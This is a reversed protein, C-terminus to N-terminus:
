GGINRSVQASAKVLRQLIRHVKAEDIRVSPGYVALSGVVRGGTAFLPAAM